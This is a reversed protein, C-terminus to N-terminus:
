DMSTHEQISTTKMSFHTSLSLLSSLKCLIVCVSTISPAPTQLPSSWRHWDDLDMPCPSQLPADQLRANRCGQYCTFTVLWADQVQKEAPTVHVSTPGDTTWATTTNVDRAGLLVTNVTSCERPLFSSFQSPLRLTGRGIFAQHCQTGYPWVRSCLHCGDIETPCHPLLWAM